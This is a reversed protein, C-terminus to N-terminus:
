WIRMHGCVEEPVWLHQILEILSGQTFLNQCWGSAYDMYNQVMDPEDPNDTSCTNQDLQPCGQTAEAVPPTDGVEDGNTLGLLGCGDGGLLLATIDQFPHYLNFFHGSEHTLVRGQNNYGPMGAFEEATGIHGICDHRILVGDLLTDGNTGSLMNDPTFPSLGGILAGDPLTMGEPYIFSVVYINMYKSYPWSNDRMVNYQAYDTRPDFVRHIGDTCNGDPDLKALRFEIQCNAARSKFIPATDATDANEMNYDLNLLEVADYIQAKSINEEGGKHIVHFVIPIIRRGNILTDTKDSRLSQGALINEQLEKLNKEYILYKHFVEPNNKLNIQVMDDMACKYFFKNDGIYEQAFVHIAFICIMLTFFLNKM